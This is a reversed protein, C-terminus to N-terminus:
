LTIPYKQKHQETYILNITWSYAILGVAMLFSLLRSRRYVFLLVLSMVFFQM